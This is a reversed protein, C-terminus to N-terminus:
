PASEEAPAALGGYGTVQPASIIATSPAAVAPSVGAGRMSGAALKSSGSEFKHKINFPLPEALVRRCERADIDIVFGDTNFCRCNKESSVCGALSSAGM